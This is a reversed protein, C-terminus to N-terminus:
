TAPPVGGFRKARLHLFTEGLGLAVFILIPFGFLVILFYTATLIITRANNGLTLAHLVALGTLALACGSAGAIVAAAPGLPAPLLSVALGILFVFAVSSPLSATWLPERPRTLRGSARTVMGGLWLDVVLIILAIAAATYPLAVVNVQVFPELEERTPAQGLDPQGAFWEVLADTMATTITAPDFGILFGIVILGIAVAVAAHALMRGFPFWEQGAESARSLSVLRTLWAVPLGFVLLFVGMALPSALISLATAGVASAVIAALPTWGLGAIALPLGTLIFLPFALVTDSLPSMFLLAAALGAGIGILIIQAM